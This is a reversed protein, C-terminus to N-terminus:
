RRRALGAGVAVVALGAMVAGALWWWSAGSRADDAPNAATSPETPPAVLDVAGHVVMIPPIPRADGGSESGVLLDGEETFEVTEGQPQNPAALVMPTASTLATAVDGDLVPYLYVRSYTRVAAVRGDASLAAGTVLEGPVPVGAATNPSLNLAGARRLGAPGPSPLADASAGSDPVYVGSAGSFEKTVIVPRGGSEIVLAEADHPGDPYTLRHLEGSGDAPDVRTLAVTDRRRRNDGTDALWISDGHTAMDEIDYPDV